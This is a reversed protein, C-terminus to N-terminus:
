LFLLVELFEIQDLTKQTNQKVSNNGEHTSKTGGAMPIIHITEDEIALENNLLAAAQSFSSIGNILETKYGKEEVIRKVYTFTSFITPDGLTLFAVNMKADLIDIIKSAADRHANALLVPDNSMPFSLAVSPKDDIDAVMGKAIQYSLSSEKNKGPFVLVDCKNITKIAKITMLEPGGPGVGVGFLIGSM